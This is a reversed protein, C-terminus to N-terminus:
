KRTFYWNLVDKVVPLAAAQLGPVNEMMITIVIQPDDYPAFVTVWNHFNNTRPTQATGTKAAVKVPLSNLSVSSGYIVADRMGERIVALNDSSIFGERVVKPQTEKITNKNDDIIKQVIHPELLKGNNAISSFATVVQLPSASLYGQGISM